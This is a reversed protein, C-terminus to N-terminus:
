GKCSMSCLGASSGWARRVQVLVTNMSEEYCVPFKAGAEELDFPAAPLAALCEAVLGALRREESQGGGTGGGGTGGGSEPQQGAAESPPAGGGAGGGGMALLNSLM